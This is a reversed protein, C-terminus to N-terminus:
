SLNQRKSALVDDRLVLRHRQESQGQTADDNVHSRRVL